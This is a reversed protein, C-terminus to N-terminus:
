LSKTFWCTLSEGKKFADEELKWRLSLSLKEVDEEYLAVNSYVYQGNGINVKKNASYGYRVLPSQFISFFGARQRSEIIFTAAM